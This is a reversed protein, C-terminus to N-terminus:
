LTEAEYRQTKVISKIRIRFSSLSTPVTAFSCGIMAVKRLRVLSLFYLVTECVFAFLLFRANM